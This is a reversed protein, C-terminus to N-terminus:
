GEPPVFPEIWVLAKLRDETYKIRRALIVAEDNSKLLASELVAVHTELEEIRKRLADNARFLDDVRVRMAGEHLVARETM